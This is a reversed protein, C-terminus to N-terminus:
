QHVHKFHPNILSETAQPLPNAPPTLHLEQLRINGTPKDLQKGIAEVSSTNTKLVETLKTDVMAELSDVVTLLFENANSVNELSGKTKAAKHKKPCPFPTIYCWPCQWDKLISGVM